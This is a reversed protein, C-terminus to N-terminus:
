SQFRECGPRLPVPKDAQPPCAQPKLREDTSIRPFFAGTGPTHVTAAVASQSTNRNRLKTLCEQNTSHSNVASKQQTKVVDHFGARFNFHPLDHPPYRATEERTTKNNHGSEDAAADSQGVLSTVKGIKFLHNRHPLRPLVSDTRKSGFEDAVSLRSCVRWSTATVM